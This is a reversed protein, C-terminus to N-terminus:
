APVWFPPQACHGVITGHVPSSILTMAVIQIVVPAEVSSMEYLFLKAAFRKNTTDSVPGFLLGGPFSKDYSVNRILAFAVRIVCSCRLYVHTLEKKRLPPAGGLM